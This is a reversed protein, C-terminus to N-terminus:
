AWEFTFTAVGYKDKQGDGQLIAWSLVDGDEYNTILYYESGATLEVPTDVATAEPISITVATAGNIYARVQLDATLAKRLVGVIRTAAGSAYITTHDAADAAVAADKIVLTRHFGGGRGASAPPVVVLKRSTV